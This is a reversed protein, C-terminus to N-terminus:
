KKWNLVVYKDMSIIKGRFIFLLTLMLFIHWLGHYTNYNKDGPDGAVAYLTVGSVFLILGIITSGLGFYFKRIFFINYLAGIFILLVLTVIITLDGGYSRSLLSIFFIPSAIFVSILILDLELQLIFLSYYLVGLSVFFRDALQLAKYDPEDVFGGNIICFFETQCSHYFFSVTGIVLALTGSPILLNIYAYIVPVLIILNSFVNFFEGSSHDTMKKFLQFKLEPKKSKYTIM